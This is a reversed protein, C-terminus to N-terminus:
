EAKLTVAFTKAPPKTKEWVRWFKFRLEVTGKKVLTVPFTTDELGGPLGPHLAVSTDKGLTLSGPLDVATWEYGTGASYEFMVTVVDGVHVEITKGNDSETLAVTHKAPAIGGNVDGSQAWSSMTLLAAVALLSLRQIAMSWVMDCQLAIATAPAPPGSVVSKRTAM